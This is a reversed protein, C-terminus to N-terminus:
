QKGEMRRRKVIDNIEEWGGGKYLIMSKRGGEKYLIM